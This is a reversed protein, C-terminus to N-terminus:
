RSSSTRSNRKIARGSGRPADHDVPHRLPWHEGERHDGRTRECGGRRGQGESTPCHDPDPGLWPDCHLRRRHQGDGHERPRAVPGGARTGAGRGQRSNRGAHRPHQDRASEVHLQPGALRETLVGPEARAAPNGSLRKRWEPLLAGGVIAGAVIGLALIWWQRGLAARWRALDVDREAGPDTQPTSM